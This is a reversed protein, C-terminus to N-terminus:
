SEPKLDYFRQYWHCFAVLNGHTLQCGKPIGTSGSTYLLIFLSDPTIDQCNVPSTCQKKEDEIDIVEGVYEDVIDRLEKTTILLRANADKMMFNLREKPYTPDLPQYACGAKLVGLSAIVM